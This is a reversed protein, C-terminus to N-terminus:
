SLFILVRIILDMLSVDLQSNNDVIVLALIPNQMKKIQAQKDPRDLKFVNNQKKIIKM